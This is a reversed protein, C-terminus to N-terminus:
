FDSASSFPSVESHKRCTQWSTVARGLFVTMSCRSRSATSSASATSTQTTATTGETSVTWEWIGSVQLSLLTCNKENWDWRDQFFSSIVHIVSYIQEAEEGVLGTTYGQQQLRKAFTTESPPLGGSGGLFLLVQVRGTSGMGSGWFAVHAFILLFFGLHRVNDDWDATHCRIPARLTGDHFCRPKAHLPFCCCHASDVKCGWVCPQRHQSDQLSLLIAFKCVLFPTFIILSVDM